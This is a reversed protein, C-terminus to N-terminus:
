KSANRIMKDCNESFFFDTKVLPGPKTRKEVSHVMRLTKKEFSGCQQQSGNFNNRNM